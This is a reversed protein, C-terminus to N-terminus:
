QIFLEEYLSTYLKYVIETRYTNYVKEYAKFCLKDAEIPNTVCWNIADSIGEVSHEEVFIGCPTGDLSTLMDLIAARKTSIVLKGLSMAELISIPFAEAQMYTPLALIDIQTMFSVAEDNRLRGYLRIKNGLDNGAISKLQAVVEKAGGGVIHLTVGDETRKMAKVLEYLGKQPVLNGIFAVNKYKKPSIKMNEVVDISNPTLKINAIINKNNILYNYSFRDLVWIQDYCNMAKLTLQAIFNHKELVNPINGYHCHLISKIGVKKCYRGIVLDRLSGISGSTTTHVIDIKERRSLKRIAVYVRMMASIGSISRMLFGVKDSRNPANDVAILKIDSTKYSKYYKQGWSAIGGTRHLPISLLVTKM